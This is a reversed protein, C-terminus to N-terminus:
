PQRSATIERGHADFYPGSLEGATWGYGIAQVYLDGLSHHRIVCAMDSVEPSLLTQPTPSTTAQVSMELRFDVLM